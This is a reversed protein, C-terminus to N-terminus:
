VLVQRIVTGIDVPRPVTPSAPRSIPGMSAPTNVLMEATSWGSGLFDLILSACIRHGRICQKGYCVNPDLRIDSLSDDRTM